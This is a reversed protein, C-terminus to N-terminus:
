YTRKMPPIPEQESHDLTTKVVERYGIRVDKEKLDGYWSLTHKM